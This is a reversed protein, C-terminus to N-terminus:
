TAPLLGGQAANGNDEGTLNLLEPNDHVNGVVLLNKSDWLDWEDPSRRKCELPVMDWCNVSSNSRWVIKCLRGHKTQVIDGEFIPKGNKDRLGTCEGLTSPDVEHMVVLRGLENQVKVANALPHIYYHEGFHILNGKVWVNNFAEANSKPLTKGRWLGRTETM